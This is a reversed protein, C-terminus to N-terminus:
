DQTSQRGKKRALGDFTVGFGALRAGKRKFPKTTKRGKTKGAPREEHRFLLNKVDGKSKRRAAKVHLAGRLREL